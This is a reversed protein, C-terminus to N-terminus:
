QGQSSGDSDQRNQSSRPQIVMEVRGNGNDNSASGEATVVRDVSDYHIIDGRFLNGNQEIVAEREFTLRSEPASYTINLARADTEGQGDRAPQRYHAPQGTAEIRRLGNTDRYLIVRDATLETAGQTLLVNGTYTAVGKSDDLRASNAKVTIPVDSDLSFAVASGAFLLAALAVTFNRIPKNALSM